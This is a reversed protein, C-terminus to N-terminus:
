VKGTNGLQIRVTWRVSRRTRWVAIPFHGYQIGFHRSISGQEM